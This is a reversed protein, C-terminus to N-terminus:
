NNSTKDGKMMLNGEVLFTTLITIPFLEQNKKNQGKRKRGM